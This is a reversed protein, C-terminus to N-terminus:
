MLAEPTFINPILQLPYPVMPAVPCVMIHHQFLSSCTLVNTLKFHRITCCIMNYAYVTVLLEYIITTFSICDSECSCIKIITTSFFPHRQWSDLVTTLKYAKFLIDFHVCLNFWSNLIVDFFTYSGVEKEMATELPLQLSKQASRKFNPVNLSNQNEDEMWIPVTVHVSNHITPLVNVGLVLLVIKVFSNM